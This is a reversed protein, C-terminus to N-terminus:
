IEREEERGDRVEVLIAECVWYGHHIGASLKVEHGGSTYDDDDGLIIRLSVSKPYSPSLKRM